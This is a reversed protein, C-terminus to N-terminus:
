EVFMNIRRTKPLNTGSVNRDIQYKLVYTGKPMTKELVINTSFKGSQKPAITLSKELPLLKFDNQLTDVRVNQEDFLAVVAHVHMIHDHNNFLKTELIYREGPGMKLTSAGMCIDQKANCNLAPLVVADGVLDKSDSFVQWLIMIGAGFVVIALIFKVLFDITIEQSKKNMVM